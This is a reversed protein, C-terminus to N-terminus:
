EEACVEASSVSFTCKITYNANMKPRNGVSLRELTNYITFIILNYTRAAPPTHFKPPFTGSFNTFIAKDPPSLFCSKAPNKKHTANQSLSRGPNQKEAAAVSSAQVCVCVVRLSAQKNRSKAERGSVFCTLTHSHPCTKIPVCTLVSQQQARHSHHTHTTCTM